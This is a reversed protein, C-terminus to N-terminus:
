NGVKQLKDLTKRYIRNLAASRTVKYKNVIEDVTLMENHISYKKLKRAPAILEDGRKHYKYHREHILKYPLDYREALTLLLIKEGYFDIWVNNTKNRAQVINDVWRCNDPAYNGNVNIRDISQQEKGLSPNYNNELAWKKFASYSNSWENCVKIGRSGYSCYDQSNPNNCRQKMGAWTNHLRNYKSNTKCDERDFILVGCHGCSHVSKGVYGVPIPKDNGCDCHFMWRKYGWKNTGWPKVATLRGVKVGM